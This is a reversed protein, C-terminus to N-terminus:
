KSTTKVQKKKQTSSKQKSSQEDVKKQQRREDEAEALSAMGHITRYVDGKEADPFNKHYQELSSRNEPLELRKYEKSRHYNIEGPEWTGRMREARRDRVEKGIGKGKGKLKRKLRSIEKSQDEITKHLEQIYQHSSSM